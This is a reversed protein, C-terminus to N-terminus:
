FFGNRQGVVTFRTDVATEATFVEAVEASVGGEDVDLVRLLGVPQSDPSILHMAMGPVAAKNLALRLPVGRALRVPPVVVVGQLLDSPDEDAALMLLARVVNRMAGRALSGANPALRSFWWDVLEFLTRLRTADGAQDLAPWREPRDVPLRDDEAAEGWALRVGASVRELEAAIRLIALELDARLREADSRLPGRPGSLLDELSLVSASAAQYAVLSGYPAPAVISQLSAFSGRTAASMAALRLGTAGQMVFREQAKHALRATRRSLLWGLRDRPPLVRHRGALAAWDDVAIELVLDFFPVLADALVGDPEGMGPVGGDADAPRLALPDTLNRSVPTERVRAFHLGEHNELIRQREAYRTETQAWNEAALGEAARLDSLAELRVRNLTDLARREEVIEGELAALRKRRVDLDRQRQRRLRVLGHRMRQATRSDELMVRGVNFFESHVQATSLDGAQIRSSLDTLVTDSTEFDPRSFSNEPAELPFYRTVEEDRDEFLENIAEGTMHTDIYDELRAFLARERDESSTPQRLQLRLNQLGSIADVVYTNVNTVSAFVNSQEREGAGISPTQVLAPQRIQYLEDAQYRILETIPDGIRDTPQLFLENDVFDRGAFAVVDSIDFTDDMTRRVATGAGVGTNAVAVIGTTTPQPQPQPQPVVRPGDAGIIREFRDPM